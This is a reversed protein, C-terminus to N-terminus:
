LVLDELLSGVGRRPPSALTDFVGQSSHCQAYQSTAGCCSWHNKPNIPSTHTCLPGDLAASTSCCMTFSSGRWYGAHPPIPPKRERVKFCTPESFTAELAATKKKRRRRSGASYPSATSGAEQFDKNGDEGAELSDEEEEEEDEEEEDSSSSMEDAGGPRGRDTDNRDVTPGETSARVLIFVFGLGGLFHHTTNPIKAKALGLKARRALKTITDTDHSSSPGLPLKKKKAWAITAQVADPALEMTAEGLFNPEAGKGDHVSATIKVTEYGSYSYTFRDDWIPNVTGKVVETRRPAQTKDGGPGAGVCKVEAYLCCGRKDDPHLNQAGFVIIEISGPTPLGDIVCGRQYSTRLALRIDGFGDYKKFLETDKANNARPTLKVTQLQDQYVIEEPAPIDIKACGIFTESWDGSFVSVTFSLPMNPDIGFAFRQNWVPSTTKTVTRSKERLVAGKAGGKMLSVIAFPDSVNKRSLGVLHKGRFVTVDVGTLDHPIDKKLHLIRAAAGVGMKLIDATKGAKKTIAGTLGAHEKEAEELRQRLRQIEEDKDHLEKDRAARMSSTTEHAASSPALTRNTKGDISM